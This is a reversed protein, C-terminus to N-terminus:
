ESGEIDEEMSMDLSADGDDVAEEEFNFEQNLFSLREISKELAVFEELKFNLLLTIIQQYIVGELQIVQPAVKEPEEFKTKHTIFQILVQLREKNKNKLVQVHETLLKIKKGRSRIGMFWFLVAIIVAELILMGMILVVGM